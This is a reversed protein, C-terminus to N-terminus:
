FFQFVHFTLNLIVINLGLQLLQGLGFSIDYGKALM